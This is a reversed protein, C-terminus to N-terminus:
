SIERRDTIIASTTQCDAKLREYYNEEPSFSKEDTKEPKYNKIIKKIEEKLEDSVKELAKETEEESIERQILRVYEERNPEFLHGSKKM